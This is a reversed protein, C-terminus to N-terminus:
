CLYLVSLFKGSSGKGSCYGLLGWSAFLYATKRLVHTGVQCTDPKRLVERVVKSFKKYFKSYTWRSGDEKSCDPFLVASQGQINFVKVYALLHLILDFEPDEKDDFIKLLIARADCKGKVWCALQLVGSPTVISHEKCFKDVSLSLVEDVRKFLKIGVLIMIYFQFDEQRGTGLLHMRLLRVEHPTLQCNGKRTHLNNMQKRWYALRMIVPSHEMISGKRVEVLRPANAHLRCSAWMSSNDNRPVNLAVCEDCPKIVRYPGKLNDHLRHLENLFGTVSEVMSPCKWTATCKVIDDSFPRKVPNGSFSLPTDETCIKFNLYALILDPNPPPPNAPAITRDLVLCSEFDQVLYAFNLLDRNLRMYKQYKGNTGKVGEKKQLIERNNEGDLFKRSPDNLIARVKEQCEAVYQPPIKLKRM